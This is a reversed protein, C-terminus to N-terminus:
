WGGKPAHSTTPRGYRRLLHVLSQGSSKWAVRIRVPSGFIQEIPYRYVDLIKTAISALACKKLSPHYPVILTFHRMHEITRFTSVRPDLCLCADLVSPDMYQAAYRSLLDQRAADFAAWNSSNRWLRRMQALPWSHVPPNHCSTSLLPLPRYTPKTFPKYVIGGTGDRHTVISTTVDLMDVTAGVGECKVSWCESVRSRFGEVFEKRSTSNGGIM